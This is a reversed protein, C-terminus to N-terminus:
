GVLSQLTANMAALQSQLLVIMASMSDIQQQHSDTINGLAQVSVVTLAFIPQYNTGTVNSLLPTPPPGAEALSVNQALYALMSGGYVSSMEPLISEPL